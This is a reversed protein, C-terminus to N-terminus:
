VKCSTVGKNFPSRGMDRHRMATKTMTMKHKAASEWACGASGGSTFQLAGEVHVGRVPACAVVEEALVRDAVVWPSRVLGSGNM